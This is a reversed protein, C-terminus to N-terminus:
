DTIYREQHIYKSRLRNIIGCIDPIGCKYYTNYGNSYFLISYHKNRRLWVQVYYSLCPLSIM